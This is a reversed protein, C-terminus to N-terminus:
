RPGCSSQRTGQEQGQLCQICQEVARAAVCFSGVSSSMAGLLGLVHAFPARRDSVLVPIITSFEPLLGCSLGPWCDQTCLMLTHLLHPKRWNWFCCWFALWHVSEACLHTFLSSERVKRHETQLQHIGPCSM